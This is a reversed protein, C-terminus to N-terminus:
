DEKIFIKYLEGTSYANGKYHWGDPFVKCNLATWEAFGIAIEKTSEVIEKKAIHTCLEAVRTNDKARDCERNVDYPSFQYVTDVANEMEKQLDTM